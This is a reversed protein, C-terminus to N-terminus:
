RLVIKAKNTGGDHTVLVHGDYQLNKRITEIDGFINNNRTFDGWTTPLKWGNTIVGIKTTDQIERMVQLCKARELGTVLSVVVEYDREYASEQMRQRLNSFTLWQEESAIIALTTYQMERLEADNGQFYAKLKATGTPTLRVAVIPM